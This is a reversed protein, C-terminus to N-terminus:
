KDRSEFLKKKALELLWLIDASGDHSTQCYFDGSTDFGLVIVERMQGVADTLVKDTSVTKTPLARLNNMENARDNKAQLDRHLANLDLVPGADDILRALDWAEPTADNISM